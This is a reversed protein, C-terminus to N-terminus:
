GDPCDLRATVIAHDGGLGGEPVSCGSAREIALRANAMVDRLRPRLHRSTRYAEARQKGRDWHIGFTMGGESVTVHQWRAVAPTPSDCGALLALAVVFLALVTHDM